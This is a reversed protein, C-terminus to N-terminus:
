EDDDLDDDKILRRFLASTGGNDPHLRKAAHRFADVLREPNDIVARARQEVLDPEAGPAWGHEAIFRAAEEVTMQHEGSAPQRGQGGNNNCARCYRRGRYWRTNEPTYEHGHPCHTRKGSHDSRAHNEEPTVPELHSPRVCLRGSCLHDLELGAPVPGHQREWIWKHAVTKHGDAFFRGYGNPSLDGGQWLWCPGLIESVAPGDVNVYSWFRAEIADVHGDAPESTTALDGPPLAAWGTYQEGRGAIGYRAVKRLAELGLAIARVNIKWGPGDQSWRAEFTDCPYSLPGYRRTTFSLIVGPHAVKAGSRIQGDLRCEGETVALQLAVTTPDAGLNTLEGDLLEVTNSWSARFPNPKRPDTFKGPWTLLPRHRLIV